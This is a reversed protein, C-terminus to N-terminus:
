PPLRRALCRRRCTRRPTSRNWRCRCGRVRTSPPARSPRSPAPLPAGSRIALCKWTVPRDLSKPMCGVTSSASAVVASTSTVGHAAVRVGQRPVSTKGNWGAPRRWPRNCCRGACPWPAAFLLTPRFPSLAPVHVREWHWRRPRALVNTRRRARRPESRDRAIWQLSPKASVLRPPRTSQKAIGQFHPSKRM